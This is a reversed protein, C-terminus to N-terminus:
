RDDPDTDITGISPTLPINHETEHSTSILKMYVGLQLPCFQPIGAPTAPQFRIDQVTGKASHTDLEHLWVGRVMVLVLSFKVYSKPLLERKDWRETPVM